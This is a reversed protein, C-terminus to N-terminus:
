QGHEEVEEEVLVVVAEMGEESVLEVSSTAEGEWLSLADQTMEQHCEVWAQMAMDSLESVMVNELEQDM